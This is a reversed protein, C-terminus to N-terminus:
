LGNDQRIQRYTNWDADTMMSYGAEGQHAVRTEWSALTNSTTPATGDVRRLEEEGARGTAARAALTAEVGAKVEAAREKEWEARAKEVGRAEIAPTIKNVIAEIRQYLPGVFRQVTEDLDEKPTSPKGFLPAAIWDLAQDANEIPDGILIEAQKRAARTIAKDVIEDTAYEPSLGLTARAIDISEAKMEAERKERQVKRAGETQRRRHDLDLAEAAATRAVESKEREWDARTKEPETITVQEPAAAAEPEPAAGEAVVETAPAETEVAQPEPDAQQPTTEITEAVM